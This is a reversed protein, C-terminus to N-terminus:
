LPKVVFSITFHDIPEIPLDKPDNINCSYHTMPEYGKIHYVLSGVVKNDSSMQSILERVDGMIEKINYGLNTQRKYEIGPKSINVFTSENDNSVNVEFGADSLDSLADIAIQNGESWMEFLKLYKM